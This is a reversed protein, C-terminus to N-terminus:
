QTGGDDKKVLRNFVVEYSTGQEDQSIPVLFFDLEGLVSHQFHRLGQGLFKDNPGLLIFSFREQLPSLKRESLEILDVDFSQDNELCVTFKSNLNNALAEHTLPVGM